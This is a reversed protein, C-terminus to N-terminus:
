QIVICILYRKFNLGSYAIIEGNKFSILHSGYIPPPLNDFESVVFVSILSRSASYIGRMTVHARAVNQVHIFDAKCTSM